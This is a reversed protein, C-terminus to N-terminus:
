NLVSIIIKKNEVDSKILIEQGQKLNMEKILKLRINCRLNYKNNFLLKSKYEVM